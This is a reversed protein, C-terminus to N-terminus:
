LNWRIQWKHPICIWCWAINTNRAGWMCPSCISCKRNSWKACTWCWVCPTAPTNGWACVPSSDDSRVKGVLERLAPNLEIGEIDVALRPPNAVFLPTTSLATDSEITVRTYEAAPWVRVAVITAGRAIDAGTVLLAIGTNKLWQRRNLPTM